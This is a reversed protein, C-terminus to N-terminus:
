LGSVESKSMENRADQIAMQMNELAVILSNGESIVKNSTPAIASIGKATLDNALFMQIEHVDSVYTQFDESVGISNKAITDYSQVLTARRQDSLHQIQPNKYQNGEKQWEEFYATGRKNMETAHVAFKKELSIIQSVNDSYTEFLNNIDSQSANMLQDLSKGTREILQIASQVDRDMTQLSIRAANSRERNTSDCGGIGIFVLFLISLLFLHVEKSVTM